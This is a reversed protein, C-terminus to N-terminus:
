WKSKFFLDTNIKLKKLESPSISISHDPSKKLNKDYTFHKEIVRVGLLVSAAAIEYGLSHDSLGLPIGKFKKKFENLALLNVDRPKTPYSMTCHM